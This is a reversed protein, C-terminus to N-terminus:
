TRTAKMVSIFVVMLEELPYVFLGGVMVANSNNDLSSGFGEASCM